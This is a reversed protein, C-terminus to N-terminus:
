KIDQKLGDWDFGNHPKYNWLDFQLKGQSAPSGPYSEYSGHIKALEM